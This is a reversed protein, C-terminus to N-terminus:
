QINFKGLCVLLSNWRVKMRGGVVACGCDFAEVLLGSNSWYQPNVYLIHFYRKMIFLIKQKKVNMFWKLTTWSPPFVCCLILCWTIPPGPSLMVTDDDRSLRAWTLSLWAPCYVQLGGPVWGIFSLKSIIYVWCLIYNTNMDILM